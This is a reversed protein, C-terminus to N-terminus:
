DKGTSPKTVLSDKHLAAHGRSLRSINVRLRDSWDRYAEGKHGVTRAEAATLLRKSCLLGGYCGLGKAPFM